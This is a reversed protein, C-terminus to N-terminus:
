REIWTKLYQECGCGDEKGCTDQNQRITQQQKTRPYRREEVGRSCALSPSSERKYVTSATM